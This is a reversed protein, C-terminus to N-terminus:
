LLLQDVNADIWNMRQILWNKLYEVEGEYSGTVVANPWVYQNLIDWRKFNEKQSLQLFSATSDIINPLLSLNLRIAKWRSVAKKSFAPDEFLRKIWSSEKVWWGEYKDNNNYDVNGGGIDFDWVPGLCLPKNRDKYMDVSSFFVADNNKFLENVWFWNIFTEPDLYSAYGAVPDKFNDSFLVDETQQIYKRIYEIQEPIGTDPEKITVPVAKDTIFWNTEDLRADVELRYGGSIKDDGIDNKKLEKINIRDPSVKLHETLLYNGEYSGNFVVEIYKSRPTYPLNFINSTIFAISNRMLSKDTYNALLAWEKDAPMGLLAAKEDLKLKYPKKPMTWTSNGRGRIQTLGEFDPIFMSNSELRINANIYDDKSVVAQNNETNIYLIPLGTFRKLFVVYERSPLDKAAVKLTFPQSYDAMTIGPIQIVDNVTVIAGSSFTFNAILSDKPVSM